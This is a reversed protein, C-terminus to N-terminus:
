AERKRNVEAASRELFCTLASSTAALAWLAFFGATYALTPSAGFDSPDFATFFLVEAVGAAIFSPWLVVMAKKM